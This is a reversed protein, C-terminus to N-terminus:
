RPVEADPAPSNPTPSPATILRWCWGAVLGLLVVLSVNRVLLVVTALVMGPRHGVLSAYGIPYVLQTLLSVALTLTSIRLLASQDALDTSSGEDTHGAMAWAAALPGGLWILYQPSFTKNAVIMVLVLLMMLAAAEVPRQVPRRLWLVYALVVALIGLATALSAGTLLLDTGPGSIEWANFDSVAIWFEHPQVLRHIMPLGAWVSEIQLGREGQWGLPSLLRDWGAWWLSVLALAGGAGWFGLTSRWRATARDEPRRSGMLAPWLLAPWLKVAAGIGILAGAWAPRRRGALLLAWGALVATLIDFRLYSTTGVLPVFAIWFAMAQGRLRGGHRWLSRSFAADLLFMLLFFTVVYVWRHGSALLNPLELLWLVPTPYEVMTAQPGLESMKSIKEFYYRTDGLTFLMAAWEVLVLLRSALWLRAVLHEDQLRPSDWLAAVRRLRPNTTTM